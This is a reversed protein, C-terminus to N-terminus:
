IPQKNERRGGSRRIKKGYVLSLLPPALLIIYLLGEKPALPQAKFSGLPLVAARVFRRESLLLSEV